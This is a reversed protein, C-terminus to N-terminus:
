LAVFQDGQHNLTFVRPLALAHRPRLPGFGLSQDGQHNLTFVNHQLCYKSRCLLGTVPSLRGEAPPSATNAMLFSYKRTKTSWITEQYFIKRYFSTWSLLYITRVALSTHLRILDQTPNPVPGITGCKEHAEFAVGRM